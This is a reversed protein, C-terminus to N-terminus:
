GSAESAEVEKRIKAIHQKATEPAITEIHLDGCKARETEDETVVVVDLGELQKLQALKVTSEIPTLSASPNDEHLLGKVCGIYWHKEPYAAFLSNLVSSTVCFNLEMKHCKCDMVEKLMAKSPTEVYHKEISKNLASFGFIFVQFDDRVHEEFM